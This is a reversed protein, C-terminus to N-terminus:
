GSRGCVTFGLQHALADIMATRKTLGPGAARLVAVPNAAGRVRELLRQLVARQQAQLGVWRAHLAQLEPPPHLARLRALAPDLAGLSRELYTAIDGAATPQPVTALIQQAVACIGDASARYGTAAASPVSVSSASSPASAADTATTTTVSGKERGGGCAAVSVTVVALVLLAAALRRRV